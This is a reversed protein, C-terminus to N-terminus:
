FGYGGYDNDWAKMCLAYKKVRNIEFGVMVAGSNIFNIEGIDEFENYLVTFKREFRPELKSFIM